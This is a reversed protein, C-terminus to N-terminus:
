RRAPRRCGARAPAMAEAGLTADSPFWGWLGLTEGPGATPTAHIVVVQQGRAGTTFVLGALLVLSACKSKM